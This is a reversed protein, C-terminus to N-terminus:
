SALTPQESLMVKLTSFTRLPDFGHSRFFTDLNQDHDPVIEKVGECVSMLLALLLHVPDAKESGRKLAFAVAKKIVYELGPTKPLKSLKPRPNGAERRIRLAERLTESSGLSDFLMKASSPEFHILPSLLDRRRVYTQLHLCAVDNAEDLMNCAEPTLGVIVETTSTRNVKIDKCLLEGMQSIVESSLPAEQRARDERHM